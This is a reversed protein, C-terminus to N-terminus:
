VGEGIHPTLAASRAAEQVRQQKRCKLKLQSILFVDDIAVESPLELRYAVEEIEEKIRYSGYYRSALKECKKRAMQLRNINTHYYLVPHDAMFWKSLPQRQRIMFLPATGCSQGLFSDIGDIQSSMAFFMKSLDGLM